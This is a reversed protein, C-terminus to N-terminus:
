GSLSEIIDMKNKPCIFYYDYICYRKLEVAMM